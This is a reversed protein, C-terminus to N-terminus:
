WPVVGAHTLYIYVCVCVRTGDFWRWNAYLVMYHYAQTSATDCPQSKKLTSEALTTITYIHMHLCAHLVWAVERGMCEELQDAM